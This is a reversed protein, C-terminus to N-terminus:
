IGCAGNIKVVLQFNIKGGEVMGFYQEIEAELPIDVHQNKDDDANNRIQLKDDEPDVVDDCLASSFLILTLIM